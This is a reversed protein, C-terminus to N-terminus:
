VGTILAEIVESTVLEAEIVESPNLEAEIIATATLEAEIIESVQLEAIFDCSFQTINITATSINDQYQVEINEGVIPVFALTFSTSTLETVESPHIKQGNQFVVFPFGSAKPTGSVSFTSTIGDVQSTLDENVVAM